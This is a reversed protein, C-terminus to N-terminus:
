TWLVITACVFNIKLLKNLYIFFMHFDSGDSVGIVSQYDEERLYSIFSTVVTHLKNVVSPDYSEGTLENNSIIKVSMMPIDFKGCVYRVAFAEMDECLTDYTNHLDSIIKPDTNWFGGSIINGVRARLNVSEAFSEFAELLELDAPLGKVSDDTGEQWTMLNLPNGKYDNGNLFKSAVVIDGVHLAQSHSGVVGINIIMDPSPNLSLLQTMACATSVPGIGTHFSGCGPVNLAEKEMATVIMINNNKKKKM